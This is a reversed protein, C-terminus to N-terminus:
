TTIGRKEMRRNVAETGAIVGGPVLEALLAADKPLCKGGYAHGYEVGFSDLRLDAAVAAVVAPTIDPFVGALENWFSIRVALAANAILKVLEAQKMSLRYTPRSRMGEQDDRRGWGSARHVFDVASNRFDQAGIIVRDPRRADEEWHAERLFEPWVCYDEIGNSHCIDDATGPVCTTRQIWAGAFGDHYLRDAERFVLDSDERVSQMTSLCLFVANAEVVTDWTCTRREPIVDWFAHAVGADTLLLGTAKGVTGHGYVIATM